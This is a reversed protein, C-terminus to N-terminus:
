IAMLNVIICKLILKFFTYWIFVLLINDKNQNLNLHKSKALYGNFLSYYM